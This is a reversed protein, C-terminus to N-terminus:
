NLNRIAAIVGMAMSLVIVGALTVGLAVSLFAQRRNMHLLWALITGSYAGTLPLPIAVFFALGWFGYKDVWPKGQGRLHQLYYNFITLRSFFRNHFVDLVALVPLFLLSNAVVAITLTILPDFGLSLGLPIGGRLESVPSWTVIIVLAIKELM